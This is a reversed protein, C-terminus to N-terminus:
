SAMFVQLLGVVLRKIKGNRDEDIEKDVEM